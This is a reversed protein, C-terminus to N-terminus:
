SGAEAGPMVDWIKITHDGGALALRKGDPRFAVAYV